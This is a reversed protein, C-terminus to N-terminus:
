PTYLINFCSPFKQRLVRLHPHYFLLLDDRIRDKGIIRSTVAAELLGEVKWVPGSSRSDTSVYIPLRLRLREIDDCHELMAELESRPFAVEKGDKTIYHPNKSDLLETLLARKRPMHQNLSRLISETDFGESVVTAIAFQTIVKNFKQM